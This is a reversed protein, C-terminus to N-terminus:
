KIRFLNPQEFDLEGYIDKLVEDVHTVPVITMSINKLDGNDLLELYNDKALYVKEVGARKAAELKYKVGGVVGLNGFVDITATCSINPLPKKLMFSMLALYLALGASPGDKETGGESTHIHLTPLPKNLKNSVLTKVVQISEAFSGKILGTVVDRGDKSNLIEVVQVAFTTGQTGMVALARSQGVVNDQEKPYFNYDFKKPGLVAVVDKKLIKIVSQPTLKKGRACEAVLSEMAKEVDRIGYSICYDDMLKQFVSEEMSIRKVGYRKALKPFVYNKTITEKEERTYGELEIIEVRDLIPEPIKNKDNSTLIFIINETPITAELYSDYFGGGNDLLDYLATYPDGSPDKVMKDVEDLLVIANYSGVYEKALGDVIIGATAGNYNRRTGKIADAKSTGNLPLKVFKKGTAKALCLGLATKGVGAHGDLLIAKVRQEKALISTSLARIIADKAKEMGYLNQDLSNRVASLDLEKTPEQLINILIKLADIAYDKDKSNGRYAMTFLESIRKRIQPPYKPMCVTFKREMASLETAYNEEVRVVDGGLNYYQNFNETTVLFEKENRSLASIFIQQVIAKLTNINDGASYEHVIKQCVEESLLCDKDSLSYMKCIDPVLVNQIIKVKEEETYEDVNIITMLGLLSSPIDKVSNATCLIHLPSIDLTVELFNDWFAKKELFSSLANVANSSIKDIRDLIFGKNIGNNSLKNFLAGPQGNEYLRASGTMINPDDIGAVPFIEYPLKQAEFFSKALSTKGCGESGVLCITTPSDTNSHAESILKEMLKKKAFPMGIHSNNMEAEISAIDLGEARPNLGVWDFNLLYYLVKQTNARETQSGKDLNNFCRNVEERINPPLVNELVKAAIKYEEVTTFKALLPQEAAAEKPKKGAHRLTEMLRKQLDPRLSSMQKSYHRFEDETIGTEDLDLELPNAHKVVLRRGEKTFIVTGMISVKKGEMDAWYAASKNTNIKEETEERTFRILSEKGRHTASHFLVIEEMPIQKCDAYEKLEAEYLAKMTYKRIKEALEDNRM